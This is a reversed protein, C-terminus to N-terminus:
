LDCRWTHTTRGRHDAARIIAVHEGRKLSFDADVLAHVGGYHKTLGKTELIIDSM